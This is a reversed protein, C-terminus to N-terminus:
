SGIIRFRLDHVSSLWARSRMTSLEVVVRQRYALPPPRSDFGGPSKRGRTPKSSRPAWWASLRRGTSPSPYEPGTAGVRRLRTKAACHTEEGERRPFTAGAYGTVSPPATGM